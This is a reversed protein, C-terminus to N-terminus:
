FTWLFQVTYRSATPGSCHLFTLRKTPAQGDPGRGGWHSCLVPKERIGAPVPLGAWWVRRSSTQSLVRHQAPGLSASFHKRLGSAPPPPLSWRMTDTPVWSLLSGVQLASAGESGERRGPRKVRPGAGGSTRQLFPSKGSCEGVETRSMWAKEM